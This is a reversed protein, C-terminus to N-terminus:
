SSATVIFKHTKLAKRRRWTELFFKEKMDSTHTHRIHTVVYNIPKIYKIIGEGVIESKELIDAVFRIIYAICTNLLLFNDDSISLTNM